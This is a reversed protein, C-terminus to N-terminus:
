VSPPYRDILREQRHALRLFSIMSPPVHGRDRNAAGIEFLMRQTDFLTRYVRSVPWEPDWIHIMESGAGNIEFILFAEGRELEEMSSFRIDFRGYHFDPMSRAIDDFRESLAPTIHACGDRYLGGVRISGIFALRVREGEAPVLDLQGPQLGSHLPSDGLYQGSKFGARKDRMILQRVSQCGDGVVCPYYRLTLSVVRGNPEGPRRVYFVGAEGDYPAFQQLIFDAGEPYIALYDRLEDAGGLLRVGYGQWGIDPKVVLPYEIAREQRVAEARAFDTDLADPSGRRLLVYPAVWRQQEPGIQGLCDAKSEGWYGGGAIRPNAVAPLTMGRHRIALGIWHLGVPIYFLWPPIRESRSVRRKLGAISPMGRHAHVGRPRLIPHLHFEFSTARAVMKWAPHKKKRLSWLLLLVLVGAWAWYGFRQLFTEGFLVTLPLVLAVYLTATGATVALFRRFPIGFWGCAIYTPFLVGPSLRCIAVVRILNRRLWEGAREVGPGIIRRRLWPHERAARGLAYIIVDGIMMGSWLCAAALGANLAKELVLVAGAVIAVDEHILTTLMLLLGVQGSSLNQWDIM